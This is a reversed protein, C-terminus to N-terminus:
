FLDMDIINEGNNFKRGLKNVIITLILATLVGAALIGLGAMIDNLAEM